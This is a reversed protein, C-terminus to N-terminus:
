AHDTGNNQMNAAVNESNAADGLMKRQGFRVDQILRAHNMWGPPLRKQESGM